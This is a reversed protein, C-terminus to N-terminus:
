LKKSVTKNYRTLQLIQSWLMHFYAPSYVGTVYTKSTHNDSAKTVTHFSGDRQVAAWGQWTTYGYEKKTDTVM